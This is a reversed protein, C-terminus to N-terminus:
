LNNILEDSILIEKKNKNYENNKEAFRNFIQELSTQQISYETVNCEDKYKEFLAFLFGISKKKDEEKKIKFLFNNDIYESLIIENFNEKAKKIIKIVNKM